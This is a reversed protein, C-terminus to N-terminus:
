TEYVRAAAFMEAVAQWPISEADTPQMSTASIWVAPSDLFGAITSSSWEESRIEADIALLGVFRVFDAM